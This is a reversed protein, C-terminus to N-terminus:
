CLYFLFYEHDSDVLFVLSGVINPKFSHPYSPLFPAAFSLVDFINQKVRKHQQWDCRYPKSTRSFNWFQEQGLEQQLVEKYSIPKGLAEDNPCLFSAWL